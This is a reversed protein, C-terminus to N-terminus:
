QIGDGLIVKRHGHYLKPAILRPSEYLLDRFEGGELNLKIIALHSSSTLSPFFLKEYEAKNYIVSYTVERNYLSVKHCQVVCKDLRSLRRLLISM